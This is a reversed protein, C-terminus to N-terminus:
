FFFIVSDRKKDYILLNTLLINIETNDTKAIQYELRNASQTLLIAHIVM